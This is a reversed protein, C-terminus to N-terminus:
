CIAGEGEKLQEKCWLLYGALMDDRDQDGTVIRLPPYGGRGLCETSRM